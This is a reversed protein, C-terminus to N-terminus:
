SVRLDDEDDDDYGGGGFGDAKGARLPHWDWRRVM